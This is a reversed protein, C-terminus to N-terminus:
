TWDPAAAPRTNLNALYSLWAIADGHDAFRLPKLGPEGGCLSVFWSDHVRLAVAIVLTFASSAVARDYAAQSRPEDRLATYVTDDGSGTMELLWGTTDTPADLIPTSM